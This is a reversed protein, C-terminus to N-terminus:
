RLQLVFRRSYFKHAPPIANPFWVRDLLVVHRCLYSLEGFFPILQLLFESLGINPSNKAL